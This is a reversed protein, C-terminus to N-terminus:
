HHSFHVLIPRTFKQFKWKVKSIEDTKANYTIQKPPVWRRWSSCLHKKTKKEPEWCCPSYNGTCLFCVDADSCWGSSIEKRKKERCVRSEARQKRRQQQRRQQNMSWLHICYVFYVTRCCACMAHSCPARFPMAHIRPSNVKSFFTM